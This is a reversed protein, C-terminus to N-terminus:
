FRLRLKANCNFFLNGDDSFTNSDMPLQVTLTLVAGQFLDHNLTVLPTFSFEDFSFISAVTM